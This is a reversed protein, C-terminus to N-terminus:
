KQLLFGVFGMYRKPFGLIEFYKARIKRSDGEATGLGLFFSFGPPSPDAVLFSKAAMVVALGM